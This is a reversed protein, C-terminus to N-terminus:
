HNGTKVGIFMGRSHKNYYGHLMAEAIDPELNDFQEAVLDFGASHIAGILYERQIWFSKRNDWSAWRDEERRRFDEDNNFETYWRGRLSENETISSLKYTPNDNETSFHTHLILLRKTVSSLIRLFEMPKELHYLLGCCFAADFTGYKDMNMVNDRVFDLKPLKVHAKVYQCAAINSDRVEIGLVQFGMRAFETAFGGELCGLDVLHIASKDGPFVVDLIRKASIFWPYAEMSYGIDPKTLTGDDLKINHATFQINKIGEPMQM